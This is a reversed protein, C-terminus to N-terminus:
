KKSDHMFQNENMDWRSAIYNSNYRYIYISMKILLKVINSLINSM